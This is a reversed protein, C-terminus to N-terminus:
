ASEQCSRLLMPVPKGALLELFPTRGGVARALGDYYRLNFVLSCAAAGLLDLNAGAARKTVLGLLATATHPATPRGVCLKTLLRVAINRRQFERAIPELVEPYGTHAMVFDTKGYAESIRLWSEYSRDVYHWAQADPLFVFHLGHDRLRLALHVDEARRYASAFGGVELIHRKLLSANGTYFQRYTPEWRGAMMDAYQRLLAREEWLGWPSLRLDPPPLLPGIVARWEQGAQAAVHVRVFDPSPVVDDDIFIILSARAVDVGYNRAVAPGQNVQQLVTLQYPLKSILTHCAGVSGDVDGDCIVIVEFSKLSINQQALAKLVRVLGERRGHSPIIISAVLEENM